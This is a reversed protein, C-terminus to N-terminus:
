GTVDPAPCDVANPFVPGKSNPLISRWIFELHLEVTPPFRNDALYRTVDTFRLRLLAGLEWETFRLAACLRRYKDADWHLGMAAYHNEILVVRASRRPDSTPTRM